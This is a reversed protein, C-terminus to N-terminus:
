ETKRIGAVARVDDRRVGRRVSRHVHPATKRPGVHQLRELSAIAANLVDLETRLEALMKGVEM